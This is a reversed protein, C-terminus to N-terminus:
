CFRACCRTLFEYSWCGLSTKNEKCRSELLDGDVIDEMKEKPLLDAVDERAGDTLDALVSVGLVLSINM